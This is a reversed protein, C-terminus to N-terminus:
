RGCRSCKIEIEVCQVVHPLSARRRAERDGKKATPVWFDDYGARRAAARCRLDSGLCWILPLCILCASMARKKLPFGLAAPASFGVVVFADALSPLPCCGRDSRCCGAATLPSASPPTGGYGLFANSRMLATFCFSAAATGGAAVSGCALADTPSSPLLLNFRSRLAPPPCAAVAVCTRSLSTNKEPDRRSRAQAARTVWPLFDGTM